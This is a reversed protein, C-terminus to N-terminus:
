FSAWDQFVYPAKAAEIQDTETKARAQVPSQQQQQQQPQIASQDKQRDM